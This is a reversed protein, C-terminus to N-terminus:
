CDVDLKSELLAVRAELYLNRAELETPHTTELLGAAWLDWPTAPRWQLVVHDPDWDARWLGTAEPLPPYLTEHVVGALVTPTGDSWAVILPPMPPTKPSRRKTAM